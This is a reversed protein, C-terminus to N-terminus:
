MEEGKVSHILGGRILQRVLIEVTARRLNTNECIDKLTSAGNEDLCVLVRDKPSGAYQEAKQKGLSTLSFVVTNPITARKFRDFVM